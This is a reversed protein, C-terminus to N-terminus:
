SVNAEGLNKIDFNASLMSKVDNTVHVNSRFILMDDIYAYSLAYTM